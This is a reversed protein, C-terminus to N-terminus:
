NVKVRILTLHVHTPDDVSASPVWLQALSKLFISEGEELLWWSGVAGQTALSSALGWRKWVLIKLYSSGTCPEHPHCCSSHAWTTLFLTIDQPCYKTVSKGVEEKSNRTGRPSFTSATTGSRVSCECACEWCKFLLADRSQGRGAEIFLETMLTQSCCRDISLFM